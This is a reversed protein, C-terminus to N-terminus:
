EVDYGELMRRLVEPVPQGTLRPAELRKTFTMPIDERGLSEAVIQMTQLQGIFAKVQFQYRPNVGLQDIEEIAKLCVQMGTQLRQLKEDLIEIASM